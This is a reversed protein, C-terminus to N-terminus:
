GDHQGHLLRRRGDDGSDEDDDGNDDDGGEYFFECGVTTSPHYRGKSKCYEAVTMNEVCANCEATYTNCCALPHPGGGQYFFECGPTSTPSKRTAMCLEDLTKNEACAMCEATQATCCPGPPLGAGTTTDNTFTWTSKGTCNGAFAAELSYCESVNTITENDTANPAAMDVMDTTANMAAEMTPAAADQASVGAALLASSVALYLAVRKMSAM